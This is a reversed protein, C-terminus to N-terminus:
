LELSRKIFAAMEGRTVPRDPCFLNNDPPNCGTTVGAHGVKNIANEFISGTDDDFFDTPSSPLSLARALMTAMEDRRINDGGCYRGSGCGVTLGAARLRNASAEYFFGDDDNFYDTSTAPLNFARSLFVAMEGRTVRDDPCFRHNFPPNCGRTIDGDALWDIANVFLSGSTDVFRRTMVRGANVRGSASAGAVGSPKDVFGTIRAIVEQHGIGPEESLLLAAVGAVLPASFSTGAWLWWEDAMERAGTTLIREGPAVIDVVGPGFNGQSWLVDQDTSGTVNLINSYPLGGPILQEGPPLHDLDLGENGAATVVVVDHERAYDIAGEIVPDDQLIAGLSLNVIDAGEDVAYGIGAAVEFSGCSGTDCSRIPLIRAEPAIGTMGVDNEAAAILAAVATGHREEPTTDAPSPDGDNDVFDWGNGDLQGVLDPHTASVGSDVVAVLVGAGKAVGWATIADVDADPVGGEQGTNELYWQHMFHPEDEPAFLQYIREVVVRSGTEAELEAIAAEVGGSTVPVEVQRWRGPGASALAPGDNEVLLTVTETESAAPAPWPALTLLLVLALAVPVSGYEWVRASQPCMHNGQGRDIVEM